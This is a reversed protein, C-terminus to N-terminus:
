DSAADANREASATKCDSGRPKVTGTRNEDLKAIAQDALKARNRHVTYTKLLDPTAHGTVAAVEDPTAGAEILRTALGARLGHMSAEVGAAKRARGDMTKFGERGYPQGNRQTLIRVSTRTKVAALAEALAPTQPVSVWDGTKEQRLRVRGGSVDSWTLSWVDGFRLSTNFAIEFATRQVSGLPWRERYAEIEKDTWPRRPTSKNISPVGIAPNSPIEGRNAAWTLMASLASVIKDARRPTEIRQDKVIKFAFADQLRIVSPRDILKPDFSGWKERVAELDARYSERTTPKLRTFAHSEYYRAILDAIGGIPQGVAQRARQYAAAFAPSTPDDPLRVRDKGRGFYYYTRGKATTRHVGPFKVQAM